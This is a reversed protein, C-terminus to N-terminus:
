SGYIQCSSQISDHRSLWLETDRVFDKIVSVNNHDSSLPQYDSPCMETQPTAWMNESSKWLVLVFNVERSSRKNSFWWKAEEGDWDRQRDRKQKERTPM